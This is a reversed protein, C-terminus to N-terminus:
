IVINIRGDARTTQTAPTPSSQTDGAIQNRITNQQAPAGSRFGAFDPSSNASGGGAGDQRLDVDFREIKINQDALRERLAPLNNLLLNRASSTEAELKATLVGNRLAVEVKLSGLEPPSLRLRIEGGEADVARFARAVRQVFRVQDISNQPASAGVATTGPAGFTKRGDGSLQAASNTAVPLQRDPSLDPGLAAPKNSAAVASDIAKLEDRDKSKAVDPSSNSDAAATDLSPASVIAVQTWAGTTSIESSVSDSLTAFQDGSKSRKDLKDESSPATAFQTATEQAGAASAIGAPLTITPLNPEANDQSASQRESITQSTAITKAEAKKVAALVGDVNPHSNEPQNQPDDDTAQATAHASDAVEQPSITGDVAPSTVPQSAAAQPNAQPIAAGLKVAPPDNRPTEILQTAVDDTQGVVAADPGATAQRATTSNAVQPQENAEGDSTSSKNESGTSDKEPQNHNARTPETAPPSTKRDETTAENSDRKRVSPPKQSNRPPPSSSQLQSPRDSSSDNDLRQTRRESDSRVRRCDPTETPSGVRELADQFDSPGGGAPLLNTSSTMPLPSPTLISNDFAADPM